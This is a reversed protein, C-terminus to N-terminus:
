LIDGCSRNVDVECEIIILMFTVSVYLIAHIKPATQQRNRVHLDSLINPKISKRVIHAYKTHAHAEQALAVQPSKM